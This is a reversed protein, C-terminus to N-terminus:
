GGPPALLIGNGNQGLIRWGAAQLAVADLGTVHRQSLLLMRANHRALTQQLAAPAPLACPLARCGLLDRYRGPGFHDGIVTGKFFYIGDEFGVQVLRPGLEPIHANAQQYLAYGPNGALVEDAHAFEDGYKIGREITYGTALVLVIIAPWARARTAEQSPEARGFRHMLWRWLEYLAHFALFCGLGYVPALYRPVQSVFFWFLLYALFLGQMARIAPPLRRMFLGAFAPAWLLMGAKELAAPFLLLNRQVGHAAQEANQLALDGQNWLFYGFLPGGAPHVPDGSLMFSRVYWWAGALLVGLAYRMGVKWVPAARRERWGIVALVAVGLLTAYVVGFYKSGCAAGALLGALLAVTGPRTDPAWLSPAEAQAVAPGAVQDASPQARRATAAAPVLDAAVAAPAKPGRRSAALAVVALTAAWCFMALGNDIYAFGLTRKVPSILFLSLGALLGPIGSGLYWRSAGWAGLAMVFLPLTAFVQAFVEPAGFQWVPAAAPLSAVAPAGAALAASAAATASAPTFAAANAAQLVGAQVMDGLILGLAFLLNFNQPFLPFRLYENLVIAEQGVYHRALPLQYMTDDWHGPPHMAVAVCLLFLVFLAMRELMLGRVAPTQQSPCKPHGLAASPQGPTLTDPRRWQWPQGFALGAALLGLAAWAVAAGHLQGVMGLAFLTAMNVLMGLCISFFGQLPVHQVDAGMGRMVAHGVVACHLLFIAALATAILFLTFM